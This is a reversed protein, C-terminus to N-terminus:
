GDVGSPTVGSSAMLAGDVTLIQFFPTVDVTSRLVPLVGTQVARQLRQALGKPLVKDGDLDRDTRLCLERAHDVQDLHPRQHPRLALDGLDRGVHQALCLLGAHRQDLGGGLCVIFQDYLVQLALISRLRRAEIRLPVAM